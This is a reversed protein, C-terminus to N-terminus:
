SPGDFSNSREVIRGTSVTSTTGTGALLTDSSGSYSPAKCSSPSPIKDPTIAIGSPIAPNAAFPISRIASVLKLESTVSPAFFRRSLNPKSGSPNRPLPESTIVCNTIGPSPTALATELADLSPLSALDPSSNLLACLNARPACCTAAAVPASITTAVSPTM